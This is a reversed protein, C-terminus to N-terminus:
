GAKLSLYIADTGSNTAVCYKTGVFKALNEEFLEVDRRLILDGNALVRSIAEDIEKRIAIYGKGPNFFRVSRM